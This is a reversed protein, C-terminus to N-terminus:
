VQQLFLENIDNVDDLNYQGDGIGAVDLIHLRDLTAVGNEFRHLAIGEATDILVYDDVMAGQALSLDIFDEGIVFNVITDDGHPLSDVAVTDLTGNLEFVFTDDTAGKSVLTDSM